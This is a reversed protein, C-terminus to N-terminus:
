ESKIAKGGINTSQNRDCTVCIKIVVVVSPTYLEMWQDFFPKAAFALTFEFCTEVWGSFANISIHCNYDIWQIM